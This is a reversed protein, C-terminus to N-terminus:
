ILKKNIKKEVLLIIIMNELDIKKIIYFIM